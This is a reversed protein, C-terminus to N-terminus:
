ANLTIKPSNKAQVGNVRLILLYDGSALGSINFRLHTQPEANGPAPPSPTVNFDDFIKITEAM